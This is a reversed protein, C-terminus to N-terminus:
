SHDAIKIIISYTLWIDTLHMWILIIIGRRYWQQIQEPKLQALNCNSGNLWKRWTLMFAHGCAELGVCVPRSEDDPRSNEM